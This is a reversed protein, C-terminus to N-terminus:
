TCADPMRADEWALPRTAKLLAHDDRSELAPLRLDHLDHQRVFQGARRFL